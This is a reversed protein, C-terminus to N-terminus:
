VVSKRDSDVGNTNSIDYAEIRYQDRQIAGERFKEIEGPELSYGADSLLHRIETRLLDKKEKMNEAKESITKVMELVDNKALELMAKKEGKKPLTIKVKRGEESLVQELLSRDEPEQDLWVGGRSLSKREKEKLVQRGNM